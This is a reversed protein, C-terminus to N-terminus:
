PTCYDLLPWVSNLFWYKRSNRNRRREYWRILWSIQHHSISYNVNLGSTCVKSQDIATLLQWAITTQSTYLNSTETWTRRSQQPCYLHDYHAEISLRLLTILSQIPKIISCNEVRWIRKSIIPPCTGGQTELSLLSLHGTSVMQRLTSLITGWVLRWKRKQQKLSNCGLM